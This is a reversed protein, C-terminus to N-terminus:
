ETQGEYLTRLRKIARHLLLATAESSKGLREAVESTTFGEVKSMLIVRRCDEPLHDLKALFQSLAENESFIRSPTHSHAPDPGGPNSESRFRVHEGARKLRDRSRGMEAIVNGAIRGLWNMFSGPKQYEFQDIHRYARLLTEQLVDDVDADRRLESGLKYHVLVALRSRYKEFLRSFADHDGKKVLEVLDHSSTQSEMTSASM